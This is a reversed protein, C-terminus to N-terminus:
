KFFLIYKVMEVMVIEIIKISKIAVMVTCKIGYNVCIWGSFLTLIYKKMILSAPYKTKNFTKNYTILTRREKGSKKELSICGFGSYNPKSKPLPKAAFWTSSSSSYLIFIGCPLAKEFNFFSLNFLDRSTLLLWSISLSREEARLRCCFWSLWFGSWWNM